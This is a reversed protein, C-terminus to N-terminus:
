RLKEFGSFVHRILIVSEHVPITLTEIATPGRPSFGGAPGAAVFHSACKVTVPQHSRDSLSGKGALVGYPGAPHAATAGRAGHPLPDPFLVVFSAPSPRAFM